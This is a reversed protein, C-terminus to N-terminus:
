VHARGIQEATRYKMMAERERPELGRSVAHGHARVRHARRNIGHRPECQDVLVELERQGVLLRFLTTYPFLTYTRTSRPPRRIMSFFITILFIPLIYYM